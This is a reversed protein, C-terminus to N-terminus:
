MVSVHEVLVLQDTDIYRQNNVAALSYFSDVLEQLRRRKTEEPVDDIMRHYAHTKQSFLFAHIHVNYM